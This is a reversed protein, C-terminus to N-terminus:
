SLRIGYNIYNIFKEVVEDKDYNNPLDLWGLFDNGAGSKNHLTNHAASIMPKLNSIHAESVAGHLNKINLSISNTM